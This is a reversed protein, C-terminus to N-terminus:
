LVKIVLVIYLHQEGPVGLVETYDKFPPVYIGGGAEDEGEECDNCNGGEVFSQSACTSSVFGVSLFANDLGRTLKYM